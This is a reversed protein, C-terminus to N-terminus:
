RYENIVDEDPKFFEAPADWFAAKLKAIAILAEVAVPEMQKRVDPDPKLHLKRHLWGGQAQQNLDLLQQYASRFDEIASQGIEQQKDPRQNFKQEVDPGVEELTKPEAPLPEARGPEPEGGGFDGGRFAEDANRASAGISRTVNYFFGGNDKFHTLFETYASWPGEPLHGLLNGTVTFLNDLAQAAHERTEDSARFDGISNVELVANKFEEVEQAGEVAKVGEEFSKVGKEFM